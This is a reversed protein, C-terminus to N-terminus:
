REPRDFSQSFSLFGFASAQDRLAKRKGVRSMGESPRSTYVLQVWSERAALATFHDRVGIALQGGQRGRPVVAIIFLRIAFRPEVWPNQERDQRM